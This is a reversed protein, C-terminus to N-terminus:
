NVIEKFNEEKYNKKNRLQDKQSKWIEPMKM